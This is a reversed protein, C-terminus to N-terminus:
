STSSTAARRSPRPGTAPRPPWRRREPAGVEVRGVRHAVAVRAGFRAEAEAAIATMEALALEEYAEYHSPRRGGARGGRPPHHRPLDGIGGHEPHAVADVLSPSGGAAPGSLLIM